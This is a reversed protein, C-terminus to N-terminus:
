LFSTILFEHACSLCSNSIRPWSNVSRLKIARSFQHTSKLLSKVQEHILYSDIRAWDNRKDLRLQSFDLAFDPCRKASSLIDHKPFSLGSPFFSFLSESILFVGHRETPRVTESKSGLINAVILSAKATISNRNPISGRLIALNRLWGSSLLRVTDFFGM